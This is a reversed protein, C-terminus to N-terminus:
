ASATIEWPPQENKVYCNRTTLDNMMYYPVVPGWETALYSQLVAIAHVCCLNFCGCPRVSICATVYFIASSPYQRFAEQILTQLKSSTGINCGFHLTGQSVLGSVKVPSSSEM